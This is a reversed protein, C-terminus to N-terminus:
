WPDRSGILRPHWRPKMAASTALPCWACAGCSPHHHHSTLAHQCLLARAGDINAMRTLRANEEHSASHPTLTVTQTVCIGPIQPQRAAEDITRCCSILHGQSRTCYLVTAQQCRTPLSLRMSPATSPLERMTRQYSVKGQDLRPDFKAVAAIGPQAGSSVLSFLLRSPRRGRRLSVACGGRKNGSM